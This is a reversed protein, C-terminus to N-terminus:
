GVCAILGVLVKSYPPGSVELQALWPIEKLMLQNRWCPRQPIDDMYRSGLLQHRPYKRFRVNRSVRSEAWFSTSHNWQYGPLDTLVKGYHYTISAGDVVERANINKHKLPLGRPIIFGVSDLIAEFDHGDRLCTGFYNNNGKGQTRFNETAPGKLAPHPGIEIATRLNPFEILCREIASLFKVTSTMNRGWYAPTCDERAMRLGTVSSYMRCKKGDLQSHFRARELAEEYRGAGLLM